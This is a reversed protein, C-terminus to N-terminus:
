TEEEDLDKLSRRVARVPHTPPPDPTPPRPSPLDPACRAGAWACALRAGGVGAPRNPLRRVLNHVHRREGGQVRGM